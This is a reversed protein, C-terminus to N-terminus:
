SKLMSKDELRCIYLKRSFLAEHQWYRDLITIFIGRIPLQRGRRREVEPASAGHGRISRLEQMKLANARQLKKKMMMLSM